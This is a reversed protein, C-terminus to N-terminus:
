PTEGRAGEEPNPIRQWRVVRLRGDERRAEAEVVRVRQGLRSEARVLWRDGALTEVWSAFRGRAFEHEVVGAFNSDLDLEALTEALAADALARLELGAAEDRVQRQQRHLETALLSSAIAVLLLVLLATLFIAGREGRRRSVVGEM